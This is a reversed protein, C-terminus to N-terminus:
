GDVSEEPATLAALSDMLDPNTVTEYDYMQAEAPILDIANVNVTGSLLNTAVQAQVETSIMQDIYEHACDINQATAPIALGDWWGSRTEEFFGFDLVVDREAAWAVQAEWGSLALDVDGAIM